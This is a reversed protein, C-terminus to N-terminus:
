VAWRRWGAYELSSEGHHTRDKRLASYCPYRLMQVRHEDRVELEYNTPGWGVCRLTRSASATDPDDPSHTTKRGIQSM